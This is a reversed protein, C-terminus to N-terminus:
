GLVRPLSRAADALAEALDVFARPLGSIGEMVLSGLPRVGDGAGAPSLAPTALLDHAVTAAVVAVVAAVTVFLLQVV